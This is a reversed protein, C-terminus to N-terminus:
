RTRVQITKAASMGRGPGCLASLGAYVCVEGGPPAPSYASTSRVRRAAEDPFHPRPSPSLPGRTAWGGAAFGTAPGTLPERDAAARATLRTFGCLHPQTGSAPRPSCARARVCVWAWGGVVQGRLGVSEGIWRDM